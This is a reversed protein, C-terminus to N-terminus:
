KDHEEKSVVITKTGDAQVYYRIKIYDYIVKSLVGTAVKVAIDLVMETLQSTAIDSAAQLLLAATDPNYTSRTETSKAIRGNKLADPNENWAAIFQDETIGLAPDIALLYEEPM